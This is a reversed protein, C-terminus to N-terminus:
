ETEVWELWLMFVPVLIRLMVNRLLRSCLLGFGLPLELSKELVSNVGQFEM